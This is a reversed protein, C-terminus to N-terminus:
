MGRWNKAQLWNHPQSTSIKFITMGGALGFIPVVQLRIIV